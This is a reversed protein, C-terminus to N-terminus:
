SRAASSLISASVRALTAAHFASAAFYAFFAPHHVIGFAEEGFRDGERALASWLPRRM